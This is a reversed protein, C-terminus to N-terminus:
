IPIFCVCVCSFCYCFCNISSYLTSFSFMVIAISYIARWIFSTTGNPQSVRALLLVALSPCLFICFFICLFFIVHSIFHKGFLSWAAAYHSSSASCLCYMAYLTCRFPLSVFPISWVFLLCFIKNNYKAIQYVFPFHFCMNVHVFSFFFLITWNTKYLHQQNFQFAWQRRM